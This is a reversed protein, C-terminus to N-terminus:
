RARRLAGSASGGYHAAVHETRGDTVPVIRPLSGPAYGPTLPVPLDQRGRDLRPRRHGDRGPTGPQAATRAWAPESAVVRAGYTDQLDKAGGFHDRQEHPIVVYATDGGAVGPTRLGQVLIQEAEEADNLVPYVPELM